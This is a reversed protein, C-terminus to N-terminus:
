NANTPKQRRHGIVSPVRIRVWDGVKPPWLEATTDSRCFTLWTPNTGVPALAVHCGNESLRSVRGIIADVFPLESM